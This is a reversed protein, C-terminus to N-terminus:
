VPITLIGFQWLVVAVALIFLLAAFLYGVRLLGGDGGSNSGRRHNYDDRMSSPNPDTGSGGTRDSSRSKGSSYQSSQSSRDEGLMAPDNSAASSESTTTATGSGSAASSRSPDDEVLTTDDEVLTAGDNPDERIADNSGAGSRGSRSASAGSELSSGGADRVFIWYGGGGFALLLVVGTILAANLGVFRQVAYVIGAIAALAAVSAVASAPVWHVFAVVPDRAVLAVVGLLAIGTVTLVVIAVPLWVSLLSGVVYAGLIWGVLGTIAGAFVAAGGIGLLRRIGDTRRRRLVFDTSSDNIRSALEAMLDASDAFPSGKVDDIVRAVREEHEQPLRVTESGDPGGDVSSSGRFRLAASGAVAWGLCAILTLGLIATGGIPEIVPVDVYPVALTTSRVDSGFWTAIEGVGDAYWFAVVLAVLGVVTGTRAVDSRLRDGLSDVTRAVYGYHGVDVPSEQLSTAVREAFNGHGAERVSDRADGMVDITQEAKAETYTEVYRDHTGDIGRIRSETAAPTIVVDVDSLLDTRGNGAIAVGHNGDYATVLHKMLGMASRLDPTAFDVPGEDLLREIVDTDYRDPREPAITSLGRFLEQGTSDSSDTIRWELEEEIVDVVADHCAEFVDDSGAAGYHGVFQEPTGSSARFFAYLSEDSPDYQTFVKQFFQDRIRERHTESPDTADIPYRVNGSSGYITVDNM